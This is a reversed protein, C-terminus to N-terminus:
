VLLGAATLAGPSYLSVIPIPEEPTEEAAVQPPAKGEKKAFKSSLFNIGGTVTRGVVDGVANGTKAVSAGVDRVKKQTSSAIYKDRANGYAAFLKERKEGLNAMIAGKKAEIEAMLEKAAAALEAYLVIANAICARPVMDHQVAFVLVGVIM